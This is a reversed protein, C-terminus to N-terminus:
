ELVINRTWDLIKNDSIWLERFEDFFIDEFDSDQEKADIALKDIWEGFMFGHLYCIGILKFSGNSTQRLILPWSSGIVFAVQDGPLTAFPCLGMMKDDSVFFCHSMLRWQMETVAPSDSIIAESDEIGKWCQYIDQLDSAKISRGENSETVWSDALVTRLFEDQVRRRTPQYKGDPAISLAMRYAETLNLTSEFVEACRRKDKEIAVITTAIVGKLQLQRPAPFSICLGRDCYRGMGTADFPKSGRIRVDWRPIRWDPVWSPLKDSAPSTISDFLRLAIDEEVPGHLLIERAVSTYLDELEVSYDPKLSPKSTARALNLVAFVKDRPDQCGLNRTRWLLWSLDDTDIAENIGNRSRYQLLPIAMSETNQFEEIVTRISSDSTIAKFVYSAVVFDRICRFDTEYGGCVVRVRRAAVLEQVMWLRVFYSCEYIKAAREWDEIGPEQLLTEMSAVGGFCVDGKEREVRGDYEAKPFADQRCYFRHVKCAAEMAEAIGESPRGLWAIVQTAKEYIVKMRGVQISKEDSDVQNICIADVWLKRPRVNSGKPRLHHLAGNLNERIKVQSDDNCILPYLQTSSAYSPSWEYSLAEYLLIINTNLEEVSMSCRLPENDGAAAHLHILRISTATPLIVHRYEKLEDKM